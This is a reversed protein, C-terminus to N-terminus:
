MNKAGNPDGVTWGLGYWTEGYFERYSDKLDKTQGEGLYNKGNKTQKIYKLLRGVKIDPKLM